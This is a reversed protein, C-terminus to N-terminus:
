LAAFAQSRRLFASDKLTATSETEEGSGAAVAAIGFDIWPAKRGEAVKAWLWRNAPFLTLELTGKQKERKYHWHISGPFKSQSGKMAVQLGRGGCIEEILREALKLDCKQPVSFEVERM